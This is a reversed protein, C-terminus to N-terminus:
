YRRKIDKGLQCFVLQRDLVQLSESKEATGRGHGWPVPVYQPYLGGTQLPNVGGKGSGEGRGIRKGKKVSGDAPKLNSLDM